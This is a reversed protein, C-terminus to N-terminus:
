GASASEEGAPAAGGSKVRPRSDVVGELFKKAPDTWVDGYTQTYLLAEELSGPQAAAINEVRRRVRGLLTKGYHPNSELATELAARAEAEKGSVFYALALGVHARGKGAELKAAPELLAAAEAPKELKMLAKAAIMRAEVGVSGEDLTYV